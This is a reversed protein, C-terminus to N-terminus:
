MEDNLRTYEDTLVVLAVKVRRREEIVEFDDMEGVDTEPQGM